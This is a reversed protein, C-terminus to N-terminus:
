KNKWYKIVKDIKTILSKINYATILSDAEPKNKGLSDKKYETSYVTKAKVGTTAKHEKIKFGKYEM